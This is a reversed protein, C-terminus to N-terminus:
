HEPVGRDALYAKAVPKIVATDLADNFAFVQRNLPELPDGPSREGSPVSACGALSATLAVVIIRRLRANGRVPTERLPSELRMAGPNNCEQM